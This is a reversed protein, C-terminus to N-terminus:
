AQWAAALPAFGHRAVPNLEQFTNSPLELRPTYGYFRGKENFGDLTVVADAVDAYLLTTVAQQPQMWGGMGGNLVVVPRGFSYRDNLAIELYSRGGEGAEGVQCAVSGGTLLITFKEPDKRLPFDRGIFGVNNLRRPRGGPVNETKENHVYALYPHPYYTAYRSEGGVTMEAADENGTQLRELEAVDIAGFQFWAFASLLGELLGASLTCAALLVLTRGLLARPRFKM